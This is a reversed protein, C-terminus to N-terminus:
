GASFVSSRFPDTVIVLGGVLIVLLSKRTLVACAPIATDAAPGANIM